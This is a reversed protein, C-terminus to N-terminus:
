EGACTVTAHYSASHSEPGYSYLQCGGQWWALVASSMACTDAADGSYNRSECASMAEEPTSYTGYSITMQSEFWNTYDASAVSGTLLVLCALALRISKNM